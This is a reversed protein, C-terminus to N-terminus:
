DGAVPPKPDLPCEVCADYDCSRCARLAGQEGTVEFALVKGLLRGFTAQEDRDLARLAGTLRAGRRALAAAVAERAKRTLQLAVARGDAAPGRAVYGERALRDVLRVGGSHSLGLPTRLGDISEGPYKSLHILAAAATPDLGAEGLASWVGDSMVLGLAGLINALNAPTM